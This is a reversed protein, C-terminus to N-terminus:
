GFPEGAAHELALPWTRNSRVQFAEPITSWGHSFFVTRNGTAGPYDIATFSQGTALGAACWIGGIFLALIASRAINIRIM